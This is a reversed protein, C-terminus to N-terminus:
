IPYFTRWFLLGAVILEAIVVTWFALPVEERTIGDGSASAGGLILARVAAIVALVGVIAPIFNIM